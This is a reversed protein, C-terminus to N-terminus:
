LKVALGVYFSRGVAPIIGPGPYEDTRRTFYKKDTMNNIGAKIQYNAIKYTASIDLVSYAPIYGAVPDSSARVNSADGFADGTYSYQFTGSFYRTAYILGSRNITKAAAEVRNGKFEGSTYKADIYAFSNFLSLGQKSLPCLYKLLNFEVYSEIGKHVSNALNTRLTYENGSADTKLVVGIRDNYALYFGSIDFNLFNKITGRYGLDANYGSADKLNQDIKSTVGFPELSSYDIPRYAQSINGYLNTFRSTKYELGLGFLPITRNRSQDAIMKDLDDIKYGKATSNLYEFRFGPTISFKKGLHFINEIFPAINTTTFDFAYEYEGTTSLDFDSGTTGEGGGLRKFWAHSYRLGGALTSGNKGLKYNHSIRVETTTNHMDEKEVERPVYQNTAPDIEDLAGAGGDENRWVLSRNSFLYSTKLSITTRESPKYSVYATLINWPSKLWNRARTSLKPNAQFMSDTLGGPMQIRNRLLSYEIGISLRDSANYQVKGFASAQRQGSNPRYGELTRYQLFSYYSWKKYTGGISNFSNFLGFSGMTFATNFEFPKNIPADKTVYNVLGGFQPGFQLSAAGRVMEIRNVAEMPPLYYAENYGYIDASINYGNQRTNMEISQTPNLGRTAIGNATFGSSESEVINLGPIRGLIQRTNNIAKNADLSDTIIVENKKGAYIIGDKVELMHGVGNVTRYGTVTITDM